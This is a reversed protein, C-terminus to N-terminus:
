KLNTNLNYQTNTPYALELDDNAEFVDLIKEWIVQQSGRREYPSCLYRITLLVGSDKVDTYVIPTLKNYYIVYDKTAKELKKKAEETSKMCCEDAISSLLTKCKKWNSDFTILVPIENWIYEFGKTYIAQKETFIKANPIQIIRGTSQDSEVWNGIENITFNFFGVHIIDGKAGNIEIRQGVDIPRWFTIYFWGAINVIPDKLALAIGASLIGFYTALSGSENIWIRFLLLIILLYSLYTAIKNLRYKKLLTEDSRRIVRQIIKRIVWIVAIIILSYLLRIQNAESIGLWQEIAQVPIKLKGCGVL